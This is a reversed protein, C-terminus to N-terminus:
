ADAVELRFDILRVDFFFGVLPTAFKLFDGFDSVALNWFKLALKLVRLVFQGLKLLLAREEFILGSSRFFDILQQTTHPLAVRRM